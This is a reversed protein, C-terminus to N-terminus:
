RARVPWNAAIRADIVERHRSYYAVAAAVAEVPLECDDAQAQLDGGYLPLDGALAWVHNGYDKIRVNAPGPHYPDEEIWEAILQDPDKITM